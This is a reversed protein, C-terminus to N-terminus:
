DVMKLIGRVMSRLGGCIGGHVIFVNGVFVLRAWSGLFDDTWSVM